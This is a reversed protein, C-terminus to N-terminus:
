ALRIIDKGVPAYGLQRSMSLIQGKHHYEHTIVHTFLQLPTLSVEFERMPVKNVISVEYDPQYKELFSKVVQNTAMFLQRADSVGKVQDAKVLEQKNIDAFHGIWFTYTNAIHVTLHRISRGGFNEINELFHTQQISECFQFLTERRECTLEYQKFLVHM